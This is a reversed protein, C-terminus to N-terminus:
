ELDTRQCKKLEIQQVFKLYDEKRNLNQYWFDDNFDVFKVKVSNLLEIIRRGNNNLIIEADEIVSKKYIAFLPEYKNEDKVPMVIDVNDSLNIMNQILKLNMLPIDCATIFNVDNESAKLCSMIGMLPGKEKELDPVVKRNLFKYKEVDNAGIIIEDFYDDLQNLIKQILPEGDVPLLSKDEGGMRSSKGGALIIATAKEKIIWSNNKIQIREPSFNWKKNDFEIIKSAFHIVSACSEKITHDNINKIVIFLGPELVTRLSNSECVILADNPLMEILAKIGRELYNKDVKLWYVKHAGANLMRSTDKASSHITEESITFEETLSDCVGCSDTGRPCFGEDRNIATVKVGIIINQQSYQNILRTAFETKGTNRGTSGIIIFEPKKIM